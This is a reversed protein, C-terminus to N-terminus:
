PSSELNFICCFAGVLFRKTYLLNQTDLDQLCLIMMNIMLLFHLKLVYRSLPLKLSPTPFISSFFSLSPLVPFVFINNIIWFNKKKESCSSIFAKEYVFKFFCLLKLGKFVFICNYFKIVVTQFTTKIKYYPHFIGYM